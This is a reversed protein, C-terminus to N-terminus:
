GGESIRRKKNASPLISRPDTKTPLVVTIPTASEATQLEALSLRYKKTGAIGEEVLATLFGDGTERIAVKEPAVGYRKAVEGQYDM